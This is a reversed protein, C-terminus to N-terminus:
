EQLQQLKKLEENLCELRRNTKFKEFDIDDFVYEGLWEQRCMIELELMKREMKIEICASFVLILLLAVTIIIINLGVEFVSM